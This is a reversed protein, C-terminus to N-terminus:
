ASGAPSNPRGRVQGIVYHWALRGPVVRRAPTDPRSGAIARVGGAQPSRASVLWM